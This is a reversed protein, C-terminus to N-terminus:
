GITRKIGNKKNQLTNKIWKDTKEMRKTTYPIKRENVIEFNVNKATRECFFDEM